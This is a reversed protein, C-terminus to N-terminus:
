RSDPLTFIFEHKEDAINVLLNYKQATRFKSMIVGYVESMPYITNTKLLRNRANYIQSRFQSDMAALEQQHMQRVQAQKTYDITETYGYAQVYSGDSGYATTTGYTTSRGANYSEVGQNLGVAIATLVQETQIKRIWQEPTYVKLKSMGYYNSSTLLEVSNPFFTIPITDINKIGLLIELYGNENKYLGAAVIRKDTHSISYPIGDTYTIRNNEPGIPRLGYTSVCGVSFAVVVFLACCIQIISKVKVAYHKEQADLIFLNIEERKM